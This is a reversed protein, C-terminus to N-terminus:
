HQDEFTATGPIRDCLEVFPGQMWRIAAKERAVVLNARHGMMKDTFVLSVWTGDDTTIKGERHKGGETLRCHLIIM